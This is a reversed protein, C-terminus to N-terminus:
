WPMRKPSINLSGMEVVNKTQKGNCSSGEVWLWMLADLKYLPSDVMMGAKHEPKDIDGAM